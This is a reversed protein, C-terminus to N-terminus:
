KVFYCFSVGGVDIYAWGRGSVKRMWSEFCLGVIAVVDREVVWVKRRRKERRRLKVVASTGGEVGTLGVVAHLAVVSGENQM